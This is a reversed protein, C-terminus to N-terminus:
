GNLIHGCNPCQKEEEEEKPEPEFESEDIIKDAFQDLNLEDIVLDDLEFKDLEFKSIFDFLGDMTTKGYQSVFSLLKEAAVKATKAEIEVYPLEPMAYGDIVLSELARLRQHGDLINLAGENIWVFFPASFGHKIIQNKLKKLNEPSIEKLNGQMPIFKSLAAVAHTKCTVKIKKM